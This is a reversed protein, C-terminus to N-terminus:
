LAPSASWSRRPWRGAPRARRWLGLWGSGCTWLIPERWGLQGGILLWCTSDSERGKPFGRSETLGSRARTCPFLRDPPVYDLAARITDAVDQPTEVVNSAVDICGVM